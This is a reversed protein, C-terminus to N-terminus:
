TATNALGFEISLKQKGHKNRMQMKNKTNFAVKEMAIVATIAIISHIM